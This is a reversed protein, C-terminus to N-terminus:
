HEKNTAAPQDASRNPQSQSPSSGGSAGGLLDRLVGGLNKGGKGKLVRELKMKAIQQLDPAVLPHSMTGTVLVPLVLEGDKNSLATTLYGGIRTGGVSQSFQKNLIATVQLDLQQSVLSMSGRAAVAGVDLAATLDSTQAVGNRLTFSGNLQSLTTYGKPTVGGFKGIKALEAPLDLKMIRGNALDITVLGSLTHITDGSAPTAFTVDGTANLTGYLKDKISSCSSLMQNADVNSLKGKVAYTMPAVRADVVVTAAQRGGFIESTLPDLRIIGRNLTVNANVATLRTQQYLITGVTITGNGTTNPLFGAKAHPAPAAEARPLVSWFDAANKPARQPSAGAIIQELEAINIKDASLTFAVHPARFSTLSISGHATTSGISSSLNLLQLLGPAFRLDANHVLLPKAMWRRSLAVNQLSGSGTLALTDLSNLPGSAHLDLAIDGSGTMDEPAGYVKAVDVLDGIKGGTVELWIAGASLGQQSRVSGGIAIPTSGIKVACNAITFTGSNLDERIDFETVIRNTFRVGRVMADSLQMSGSFTRTGGTNSIDATGSIVADTNSDAATNLFSTAFHLSVERLQLKARLPIAAPTGAALPGGSGSRRLTQSGSGPLHAEVDFSFSRGPGYNKLTADIHDYLCRPRHPLLDTVAIQGDQISLESLIVRSPETRGSSPSPAPQPSSGNAAAPAGPVAPQASPPSTTTPPANPGVAPPTGLSAFNWVGHENRIFEITPREMKLSTIEVRGRLLPFARVRVDLRAVQAFPASGGFAPDEGISVNRAELHLPFFGLSLQRLEVPRNLRDQLQGQLQRRYRNADVIHPLTLLLVLDAAIFAVLIIATKRM